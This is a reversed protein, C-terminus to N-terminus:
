PKDGRCRSQLVRDDYARESLGGLRHRVSRTGDSVRIYVVERTVTWDNREAGERISQEYSLM